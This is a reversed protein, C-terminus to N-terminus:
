KLSWRSIGKALRKTANTLAKIPEVLYRAAILICVSGLLLVLLLVFLVMRNVINENEASYQLFMARWEGNLM